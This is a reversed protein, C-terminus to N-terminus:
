QAAHVEDHSGATLTAFLRQAAGQFRKADGYPRAVLMAGELAGIILQAEDRALGEYHLTGEAAGRELVRGLRHDHDVEVAGAVVGLVRSGPALRCLCGM